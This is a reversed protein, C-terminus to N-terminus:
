RRCVRCDTVPLPAGNRALADLLDVAHDLCPRRATDRQAREAAARYSPDDLVTRTAAHIAEPTREDPGLVIGIGLERGREANIPQDASIPLFVMPLGAAIAAAVTGYGGHTIVADCRGMIEAQPIWREIRVNDPQPGFQDPDQTPGVTVILELPEGALGDLIAGLLESGNYVTGLTVYVTPTDSRGAVGFPRPARSDVPRV